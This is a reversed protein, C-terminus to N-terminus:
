GPGAGNLLFNMAGHGLPLRTLLVSVEDGM